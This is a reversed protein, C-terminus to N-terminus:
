FVTEYIRSFSKGVAEVSFRESAGKCMAAPDYSKFESFMREIADALSEDNRPPVLISNSENLFDEVGGCKTSIVPTGCALAEAAVAGFTEFDSNLVLFASDRMLAAVEAPRLAGTFVVGNNLLGLSAAHSELSRRYRGNGAIKLIFDSRKKRVIAAANIIGEVNKLRHDLASVHVFEKVDTALRKGRPNFIEVDITNPVIFYDNRISCRTMESELKRSVVTIARASGGITRFMTKVFGPFRDFTGAEQLYGAWHETVIYRKMDFLREAFAILGAPPIVEVHVFDHRGFREEILKLGKMAGSVFNKTHKLVHAPNKFEDETKVERKEYVVVERLNGSETMEVGGAQATMRVYLVTVPFFKSIALAHNKVCLGLLRDDRNPYWSALMLIKM